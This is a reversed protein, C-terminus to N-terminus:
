SVSYYVLASSTYTLFSYVISVTTSTGTASGCSSSSSSYSHMRALSCRMRDYTRCQLPQVEQVLYPCYLYCLHQSSVATCTRACNNCCYVSNLGSVEDSGGAGHAYVLGSVEVGKKATVPAPAVAPTAAAAVKSNLQQQQQQQRQPSGHPPKRQQNSRVVLATDGQTLPQMTLMVAYVIILPQLTLHLLAETVFFITCSSM